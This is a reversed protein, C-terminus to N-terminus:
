GDEVQEPCSEIGEPVSDYSSYLCHADISTDIPEAARIVQAHPVHICNLQEDWRKSRAMQLSNTEGSLYGFYDYGPNAYGSTWSQMSHNLKQYIPTISHHNVTNCFSNDELCNIDSTKFTHTLNAFPHENIEKHAGSVMDFDDNASYKQTYPNEAQCQSKTKWGAMALYDILNQGTFQPNYLSDQPNSNWDPQSYGVPPNHAATQLAHIRTLTFGNEWTACLSNDLSTQQDSIADATERSHPSNTPLMVSETELMPTPSTTFPSWPHLSSSGTLSWREGFFSPMSCPNYREQWNSFHQMGSPEPKSTGPGYTSTLFQTWSSSHKDQKTSTTPLNKDGSIRTDSFSFQETNSACNVSHQLATVEEISKDQAQRKVKYRRNQFWIKVQMFRYHLSNSSLYRQQKFRHELEYIQAQTFLIRPKRRGRHRMLIFEGASGREPYRRTEMPRKLRLLDLPSEHRDEPPTISHVPAPNSEPLHFVGFM